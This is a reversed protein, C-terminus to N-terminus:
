FYPRFKAAKGCLSFANLGISFDSNILALFFECYVCLMTGLTHKSQM